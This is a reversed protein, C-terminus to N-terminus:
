RVMVDASVVTDVDSNCAFYVTATTGPRTNVVTTRGVLAGAATPRLETIEVPTRATMRGGVLSGEARGGEGPNKCNRLTLTVTQGLHVVKPSVTAVLGGAGDDALAAPEVLGMTRTSM